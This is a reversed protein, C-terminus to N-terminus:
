VVTRTQGYLTLHRGDLHLPVATWISAYKVQQVYWVLQHVSVCQTVTSIITFVQKLTPVGALESM